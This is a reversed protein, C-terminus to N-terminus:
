PIATPLPPRTVILFENKVFLLTAPMSPSPPENMSILADLIANLSFPMSVLPLVAKDRDWITELVVAILPAVCLKPFLWITPFEVSPVAGVIM